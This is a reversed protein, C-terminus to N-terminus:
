RFTLLNTRVTLGLSPIRGGDETERGRVEPWRGRDGMERGGIGSRRDRVETRRGGKGRGGVGTEWGGIM